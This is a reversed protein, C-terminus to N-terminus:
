LFLHTIKLVLSYFTKQSSVTKTLFSSKLIGKFRSRASNTQLIIFSGQKGVVYKNEKSDHKLNRFCIKLAFILCHLKLRM